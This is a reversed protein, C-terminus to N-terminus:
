FTYIIKFYIRSSSHPSNRFPSFICKSKIDLIKIGLGSQGKPRCIISAKTKKVNGFFGFGISISDKKQAEELIELFPSMFM